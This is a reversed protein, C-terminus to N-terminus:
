PDEPLAPRECPLHKDFSLSRLEHDGAGFGETLRVRLFIGLDKTKEAWKIYTPDTMKFSLPPQLNNPYGDYVFAVAPGFWGHRWQVVWHYGPTTPSGDVWDSQSEEKTSAGM